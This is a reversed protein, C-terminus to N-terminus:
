GDLLERVRGLLRHMQFPKELYDDAGIELGRLVEAPDTRATLMVVPIGSTADNEKLKRLVAYGYMKPMVLDLIVLAPRHEVALTFAQEGDIATIVEYGERGLSTVLLDRIDDDDDAVLILHSAEPQDAV